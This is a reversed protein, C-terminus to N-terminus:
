SGVGQTCCRLGRRSVAPAKTNKPSVGFTNRALAIGVIGGSDGALETGAAM